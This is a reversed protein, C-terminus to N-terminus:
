KLYVNVKKKWYRVLWSGIGENYRSFLIIEEMSIRLRM